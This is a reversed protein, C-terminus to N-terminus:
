KVFPNSPRLNQIGEKVKFTKVIEFRIEVFHKTNFALPNLKFEVQLTPISYGFNKTGKEPNYIPLACTQVGTM